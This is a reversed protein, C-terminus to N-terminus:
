EAPPRAPVPAEAMEEYFRRLREATTKSTTANAAVIKGARVHEVVYVTTVVATVRVGDPVAAGPFDFRHNM